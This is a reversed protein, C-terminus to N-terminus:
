DGAARPSFWAGGRGQAAVHARAPRVGRTALGRPLAGRPARRQRAPPLAGQRLGRTARRHVRSLLPARALRRDAPAAVGLGWWTRVPVHGGTVPLDTGQANAVLGRSM